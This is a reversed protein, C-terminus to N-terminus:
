DRRTHDRFTAVRSIRDRRLSCESDLYGGVRNYELVLGLSFVGRGQNAFVYEASTDFGLHLWCDTPGADGGNGTGSALAGLFAAHLGLAGGVDVLYAAR